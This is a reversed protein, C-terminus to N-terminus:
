SMVKYETKFCSRTMEAAVNAHFGVMSRMMRRGTETKYAAFCM